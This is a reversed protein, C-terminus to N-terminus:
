LFLAAEERMATRSCTVIENSNVLQMIIYKHTKHMKIPNSDFARPVKLRIMFASSEETAKLFM